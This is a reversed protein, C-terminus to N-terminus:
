RLVNCRSKHSLLFFPFSFKKDELKAKNKKKSYKSMVNAADDVASPRESKQIKKINSIKNKKSKM